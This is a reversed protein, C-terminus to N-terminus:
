RSAFYNNVFSSLPLRTVDRVFHSSIIGLTLGVFLMWVSHHKNGQSVQARTTLGALKMMENIKEPSAPRVVSKLGPLGDLSWTNWTHTWSLWGKESDLSYPDEARADGDELKSCWKDL